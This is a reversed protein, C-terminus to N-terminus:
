TEKVEEVPLSAQQSPVLLLLLLWGGLEVTSHCPNQSTL